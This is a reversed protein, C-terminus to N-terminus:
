LRHGQWRPLYRRLNLWSVFREKLFCLKTCRDLHSTKVVRLFRSLSLQNLEYRMLEKVRNKVGSVILPMILRDDGDLSCADVSGIQREVWKFFLLGAEIKQDIGVDRGSINEDSARFFFLVRGSCSAGREWALKIAFAHDTYWALPFDPFGKIADYATRRFMLDAMRQHIRLVSSSYLMQIGSEYEKRSAEATSLDGHADIECNRCHFLDVSPYKRALIIMEQLYEPHYKDDDSALVCWEGVAYKMANNWAAVLNRGGINEMNQYYRVPIGDVLWRRGGDPLTDFSAEWPYEKIVEYLGEPSKDDVVVLEFDRCTQALISDIAEKLFRRKYAPLVFSVKAM